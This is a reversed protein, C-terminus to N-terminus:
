QIRAIHSARIAAILQAKLKAVYDDVDAESALLLTCHLPLQSPSSAKCM